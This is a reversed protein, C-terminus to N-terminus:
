NVNFQVNALSVYASGGAQWSVTGATAVRIEAFANASSGIFLLEIGGTPRYGVPLTFIVGGAGPVWLGRMEVTGDRRKRYQVPGYPAAYHGGQALAPTIWAEPAALVPNPYTGALDGGANVGAITSAPGQAGTDGKPGAPGVNGIPGQPGPMGQVAIDQWGEATRIRIARASLIAM